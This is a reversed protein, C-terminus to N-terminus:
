RVIRRLVENWPDSVVVSGDPLVALGAPIVLDTSGGDGLHSGVRGTGAITRVRTTSPNAGVTVERIRLNGSDALLVSSGTAVIGMQARIQAADGDGDAFGVRSAAGVLTIVPHPLRSAIRRLAGNGSDVVLADGSPLLTIASPFLFRAATGVTADAIGSRPSGAWTTVRGGGLDVSRIAHNSQDVVLLTGTRSFALATPRGFRAVALPGDVDGEEAGAVTTVQYPARPDIRRIRHNDSDAVFVAGTGDVAVGTPSRFSADTGAGDYSGPTGSGALTTVTHPADKGVVRIRNGWAEAVVVDGAPTVALGTPGDFTAAQGPGDQGGSTQVTGAFAEVRRAWSADPLPEVPGSVNVSPLPTPPRLRALARELVNRILRELRPDHLSPDASLGAAFDISGAAFVLGGGPLYRWVLHSVAPRNEATLVPSVGGAQVGPPTFGNDHLEDIEVGVVDVLHDGDHLGTGEFPWASADPIFLPYAHSLYSGYMIGFLANEPRPDPPDRYRVTSGPQPDGKLGKFCTITRLPTGRGDPELRIRWYGGNAGLYVLSTGADVAADVQAREEAPWYEDHGGIVLVPVGDLLHPERLFDLNTAYTVDYGSRELFQLTDLARWAFRGLGDADVYPRDFSVQAARGDPLTGSGDVYLSEGGWANYAQDTAFTTQFLIEARRGDRVVFPTFARTGDARQLRVVYVGSLWDAGVQFSAVPSWACEVLGTDPRRPCSPQPGVSLTGSSWLSRAGAGGYDGLRLVEAVASGVTRSAALINVQDGARASDTSVFLALDSPDASRGGRWGPTGSRRNETAVPSAEPQGPGSFGKGGDAAGDGGPGPGCAVVLAVAIMGTRTRRVGM